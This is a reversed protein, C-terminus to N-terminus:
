ILYQTNFRPPFNESAKLNVETDKNSIFEIKLNKISHIITLIGTM